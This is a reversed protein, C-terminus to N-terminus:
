ALLPYKSLLVLGRPGPRAYFLIPLSTDAEALLIKMSTYGYRGLYDVNRCFSLRLM